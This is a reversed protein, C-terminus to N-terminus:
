KSANGEGHYLHIMQIEGKITTKDMKLECFHLFGDDCELGILGAVDKFNNRNVSYLMNMNKSSEDEHIFKKILLHYNEVHEDYFKILNDDAKDSDKEIMKYYMSKNISEIWLNIQSIKTLKEIDELRKKNIKEINLHEKEFWSISAILLIALAFNISIIVIKIM